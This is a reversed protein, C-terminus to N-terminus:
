GSKQLDKIRLFCLRLCAHICPIRQKRGKGSSEAMDAWYFWNGCKISLISLFFCRMRLGRHRGSLVMVGQSFPVFPVLSLGQVTLRRVILLPLLLPRWRCALFSRCVTKLSRIES